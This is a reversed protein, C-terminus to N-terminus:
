LFEKAAAIREALDELRETHESMLDGHYGGADAASSLLGYFWADDAVHRAISRRHRFGPCARRRRAIPDTRVPQLVPEALTPHADHEPGHALGLSFHDRELQDTGLEDVILGGAAPELVFRSDRALNTVAM